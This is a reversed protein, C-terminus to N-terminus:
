RKKNRRKLCQVSGPLLWTKRCQNPCDVCFPDSPPTYYEKGPLHLNDIGIDPIELQVDDNRMKKDMEDYWQNDKKIGRIVCYILIVMSLLVASVIIIGTIWLKDM